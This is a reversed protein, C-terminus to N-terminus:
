KAEMFVSTLSIKGNDIIFIAPFVKM